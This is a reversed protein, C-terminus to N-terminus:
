DLTNDSPFISNMKPLPFILRMTPLMDSPLIVNKEAVPIDFGNEAVVGKILIKVKEPELM